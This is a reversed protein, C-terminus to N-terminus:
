VASPGFACYPGPGARNDTKNTFSPGGFIQPEIQNLSFPAMFFMEYRPDRIESSPDRSGPERAKWSDPEGPCNDFFPVMFVKSVSGDKDFGNSCSPAGFVRLGRPQSQGSLIAV